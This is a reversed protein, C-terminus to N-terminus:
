GQRLIIIQHYRERIFSYVRGISDAIFLRLCGLSAAVNYADLRLDRGHMQLYLAETNLVGRSSIPFQSTSCMLGPPGVRVPKSFDIADM